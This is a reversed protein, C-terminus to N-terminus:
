HGATATVQRTALVIWVIYALVVARNLLGVGWTGTAILAGMLVACVWPAHAAAASWYRERQDLGRRLDRGVLVAGVALGVNGLLSGVDHLPSGVAFVAAIVLGAAAVFLLMRGIRGARRLRGPPLGVALFCCAAALLVFAVPLIWGQDGLAYQSIVSWGPDLFPNLFHAVALAAGAGIATLAAARLVAGPRHTSSVLLPTM